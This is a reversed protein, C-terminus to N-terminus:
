FTNPVRRGEVTDSEWHGPSGTNAAQPRMEIDRRRGWIVLKRPSKQGRKGTISKKIRLHQYMSPFKVSLNAYISEFFIRMKPDNPFDLLLSGCIQEPSRKLMIKELTYELLPLYNWKSLNRNARKNDYRDQALFACYRIGHNPSIERSSTSESVNLLTAIKKQTM